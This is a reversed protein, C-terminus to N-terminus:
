NGAASVSAAKMPDNQPCKDPKARQGPSFGLLRRDYSAATAYMAPKLQKTLNISLPEKIGPAYKEVFGNPSYSRGKRHDFILPPFLNLTAQQHLTISGVSRM